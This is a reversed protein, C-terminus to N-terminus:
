EAEFNENRVVCIIENRNGCSLKFATDRAADFNSLHLLIGAGQVSYNNGLSCKIGGEMCAIYIGQEKGWDPTQINDVREIVDQSAPVYIKYGTAGGPLTTVTSDSDDDWNIGEPVEVYEPPIEEEEEDPADTRDATKETGDAYYMYSEYDNGGVTIIFKTEVATFTDMYIFLQAGDTRFNDKGLSTKVVGGGPCAIYVCIRDNDPRMTDITFGEGDKIYLMYKEKYSDNGTSNQLWWEPNWGIDFESNTSGAGGANGNDNDNGGGTQQGDGGTQQGNGDGSGTNTNGNGGGTNTNGNGGGNTNNGDGDTQETKNKDDGEYGDGPQSCGAMVLAFSAVLALLVRGAARTMKQRKM